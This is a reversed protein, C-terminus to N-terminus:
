TTAPVGPPPQVVAQTVNASATQRSGSAGRWTSSCLCCGTGCVRGSSPRLGAVDGDSHSAGHSDRTLTGVDVAAAGPVVGVAEKRMINVRGCAATRRSWSSPSIEAEAQASSFRGESTQGRTPRSRPVDCELPRLAAHSDTCVIVPASPDADADRNADLVAKLACLEAM